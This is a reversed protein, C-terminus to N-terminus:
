LPSSTNCNESRLKSGPPINFLLLPGLRETPAIQEYWEVPNGPGRYFRGEPWHSLSKEVTTSVVNWGDAPVCRNVEEIHPLSYWTQLYANRADLMEKPGGDYSIALSVNQVGLASLRKALLKLDQGWDYNSDVLIREPEDGAFGNFYALYDPHHPAVSIAMWVILAGGTLTAAVGGRAWRLLQRLGIAAIIALSIWIPEIHRIGIDIHSRTAPLLIALSFAVPLLYHPRTREKICPYIGLAALALFAIPTKVALAVPFYYWWGQWSFHGLLFAAHGLYNNHNLEQQIGTFFEPALIHFTREFRHSHFSGVSFWYGAWIVVPVIVAAVGFTAIREVALNRLKRWGPWQVALYCVLAFALSCPIYGLATFRSLCALATFLGMFIARLWTPKQAWLVAALFAASMNAALATDPTALGANALVDPLLTFLALAVVAIAKGFAHWSWGSVVACALLFFPLNGLRMLFITREPHGTLAIQGLPSWGTDPQSPLRAGLFFPGLAQMMRSLPPHDTNLTYTHHAVYELGSVFHIPEDATISLADYTAVIRLSAIGILCLCLLLFHRELFPALRTDWFTPPSNTDPAVSPEGNSSGEAIEM